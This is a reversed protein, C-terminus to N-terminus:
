KLVHVTYRKNNQANVLLHLIIQPTHYNTL